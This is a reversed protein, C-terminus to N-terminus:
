LEAVISARQAAYEEESIAGSDRLEGLRALRAQPDLAELVAAQPPSTAVGDGSRGSRINVEDILQRAEARPLGSYAITGAMGGASTIRITGFGFVTRRFTADQVRSLPVTRITQGVLGVRIMVRRDTLLVWTRRRWFEWLGLTILYAWWWGLPSPQVGMLLIEGQELEIGKATKPLQM